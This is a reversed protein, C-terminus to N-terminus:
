DDITEVSITAAGERVIQENLELLLKNNLDVPNDFELWAPFLNDISMGESDTVEPEEEGERHKMFSVSKAGKSILTEKMSSLENDTYERTLAIRIHNDTSHEFSSLDDDPVTLFDPPREEENLEFLPIFEHNRAEMDYLFFGHDVVGEDFRFPIPSGPYWANSNVQQHCHFHGAYIRDFKSSEFNVIDWNKLLFCENFTAGNIGIHTLLVDNAEWHEEIEALAKMFVSEYHIFPLIWFRHDNIKLLKIDEIVTLVNRMPRLSNLEWSNKLFMDHNGPFCIWTQNYTHKTEHFFDYVENIVRINLNERDHFLDGLVIVTSIEHEIAFQRITTMAWVCDELKKPAGNHIDATIIINDM